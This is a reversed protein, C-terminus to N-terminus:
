TQNLKLVVLRTEADYLLRLVFDQSLYSWFLAMIVALCCSESVVKYTLITLRWILSLCLHVCVHM